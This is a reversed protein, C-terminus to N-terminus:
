ILVKQRNMWLYFRLNVSLLKSILVKQQNGGSLNKVLQSISYARIDLENIYNFTQKKEKKQDILIRSSIKKLNFASINEKISKNLFLGEDKRDETLYVIGNEIADRYNSIDIKKGELYIKGSNKKSLGCVTKALETRGAGVLGAFGLIEGRRLEFEIDKFKDKRKLESVKFIIGDNKTSKDPYLNSIDRGIMKKVLIDKNIKSVNYTDIYYGDRLVTVRDCLGFVEELKHTIYIISINKSKLNNIIDFLNESESDTLSATPEDFIIIEANTTLTRAIEVLQKQSVTLKKVKQTVDINTGFSNLLKKSKEYLESYKIFFNRSLNIKKIFINEAVTLDPCLSLEQHVIGIGLKQAERPNRIDIEQNNLCICGSDKQHIGSIINMLTSKGAGNEGIIAHVEGKRLKFNVDTLAKTGPFEKNINRVSLIIEDTM